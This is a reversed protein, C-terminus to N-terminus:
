LIRKSKCLLKDNLEPFVFRRPFRPNTFFMLIVPTHHLVTLVIRAASRPQFQPFIETKSKYMVTLTGHTVVEWGVIKGTLAKWNSGKTFSWRRYAVM